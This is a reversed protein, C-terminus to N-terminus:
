KREPHRAAGAAIRMLAISKALVLKERETPADTPYHYYRRERPVSNIDSGPCVIGVNQRTNYEPYYVKQGCRMAEAIMELELEAAERTIFHLVETRRRGNEICICYYGEYINGIVKRLGNADPHTTMHAKQHREVSIYLTDSPKIPTMRHLIEDYIHM